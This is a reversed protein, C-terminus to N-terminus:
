TLLYMIISKANLIYSPTIKNEHTLIKSVKECRLACGLSNRMGRMRRSFYLKSKKGAHFVQWWKGNMYFRYYLKDTSFKNMLIRESIESLFPKYRNFKSLVYVMMFLFTRGSSEIPLQHTVFGPKICFEKMSFMLVIICLFIRSM